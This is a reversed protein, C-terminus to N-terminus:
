HSKSEALMRVHRLVRLHIRHIIADSWWRWYEAPWLGHQYWTTGELMTHGNSLRVLRFQGRKSVLFGDLHKPLVERYPSWEHMPAPNETVRFRLLRPEDWIEVPEVFPGTSFECYRVAGVGSGEIRARQPYAIGANFWWERAEPLDSFGVVNPWVQAPPANIEITTVIEYLPSPAVAQETVALLPLLLVSMTVHLVKSHYNQSIAYGIAAGICGLGFALPSAMLLCIIGELAFLLLACGSLLLGLCAMGITGRMTYLQRYNYLYANVVGILFPTGFFLAFGYGKLVYVGLWLMLLTLGVSSMLAFFISKAKEDTGMATRQPTWGDGERSPLVCLALMMVYNLLPVFFLLGLWPPYGADVARRVSMSVGLWFFPLTWVAMMLLVLDPAPNLAHQRLTILPNLYDWPALFHGTFFYVVGADVGYKLLMLSFGVLAYTQRNVRAALGFLLPLLGPRNATENM